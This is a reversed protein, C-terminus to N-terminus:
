LEIKFSPEYIENDSQMLLGSRDYYSCLSHVVNTKGVVIIKIKM